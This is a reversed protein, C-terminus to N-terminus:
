YSGEVDGNGAAACLLVPNLAKSILDVEGKSTAKLVAAVTQVFKNDLLSFRPKRNIFPNKKFFNNMGCIFPLNILLFLPIICLFM